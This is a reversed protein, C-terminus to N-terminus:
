ANMNLWSCSAAMAAAIDTRCCDSCDFEGVLEVVEELAAATAAAWCYALLM